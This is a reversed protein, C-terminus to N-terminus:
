IRRCFSPLSSSDIFLSIRTQPTPPCPVTRADLSIADAYIAFPSVTCEASVSPSNSPSFNYQVDHMLLPHRGVLIDILMSKGGVNPGVIAQQEDGRLTYNVPEAMRWAPMRTVGNEIKIIEQMM